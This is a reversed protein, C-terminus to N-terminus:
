SNSGSPTLPELLAILEAHKAWRAASLATNNWYPDRVSLDPKKSLLLEAVALRGHLAAQILAHEVLYREDLRGEPHRKGEPVPPSCGAEGLHVRVAALDGAAAALVLNDCRAGCRVLADVALTYAFTSAAWLPAGDDNRGNVNAGAACLAEVLAGQVGASAPHASTVILGMPTDDDSYCLCTADPDAGAELLISALEVANSPSQWQRNEEVGNAAVYHLLTARHRFPSRARALEPARSILQRLEEATGSVIADAAAEFGPDVPRGGAAVVEGWTAFRHLRAIAERANALSLPCGFVEDDGRRREDPWPAHLRLLEAMAPRRARHGSVLAAVERELVDGLPLAKTRVDPLARFIRDLECLAAGQMAGMRGSGDAGHDM